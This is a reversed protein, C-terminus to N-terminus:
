GDLVCDLGLRMRQLNAELALGPNSEAEMHQYRMRAGYGPPETAYYGVMRLILLGRKRHSSQLYYIQKTEVSGYNSM